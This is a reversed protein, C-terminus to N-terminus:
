GLPAQAVLTRLQGGGQGTTEGGLMRRPAPLHQRVDRRHLRGAGPQALPHRGAQRRILLRNRAPLAHWPHVAVRGLHQQGLHAHVPAPTGRCGLQRGPCPPTRPVVLAGALRLGAPRPLAVRPALGQPHRTAPSGATGAAGREPGLVRPHEPASAPFLRGQRHSVTAQDSGIMQHAIADWIPIATGFVTIAQGGGPQRAVIDMAEFLETVM